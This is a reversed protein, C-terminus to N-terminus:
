SGGAASPYQGPHQRPEPWYRVSQLYETAEPHETFDLLSGVKDALVQRVEGPSAFFFEKRSNVQNVARDAFHQHLETELT